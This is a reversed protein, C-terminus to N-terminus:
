FRDVFLSIITDVEDETFSCIRQPAAGRLNTIGRYVDYCQRKMDHDIFYKGRVMRTDDKLHQRLM